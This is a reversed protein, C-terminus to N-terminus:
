ILQTHYQSWTKSFRTQSMHRTLYIHSGYEEDFGATTDLLSSSLSSAANHTNQGCEDINGIYVNAGNGNQPLTNHPKGTAESYLYPLVSPPLFSM